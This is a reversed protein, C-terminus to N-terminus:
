AVRCSELYDEVDGVTSGDVRLSLVRRQPGKGTAWMKRLTKEHIDLAAAVKLRKLFRSRRLAEGASEM